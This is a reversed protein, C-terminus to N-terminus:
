GTWQELWYFDRNGREKDSSEFNLNFSNLQIDNNIKIDANNDFQLVYEIPLKEIMPPRKQQSIPHYEDSAAISKTINSQAMAATVNM